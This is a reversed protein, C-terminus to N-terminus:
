KIRSIGGLHEIKVRITVIFVVYKQENQVLKEAVKVRLNKVM